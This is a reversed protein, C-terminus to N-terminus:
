GGRTRPAVRRTWPRRASSSAFVGVFIVFLLAVRGDDAFGPTGALPEKDTSPLPDRTSTVTVTASISLVAGGLQDLVDVSVTHEGQSFAYSFTSTATSFGVTPDTTTAIVIGDVHWVFSCPGDCYPAAASM